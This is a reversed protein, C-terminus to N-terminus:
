RLKFLPKQGLLEITASKEFLMGADAVQWNLATTQCDAAEPQGLMTRETAGAKVIEANM